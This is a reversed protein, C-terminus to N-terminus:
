ETWGDLDAWAEDMFQDIDVDDNDAKAARQAQCHCEAAFDPQPLLVADNHAHGPM